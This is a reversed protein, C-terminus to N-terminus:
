TIFFVTAVCPCGVLKDKIKTLSRSHLLYEPTITVNNEICEIIIYTTKKPAHILHVQNQGKFGPTISTTNFPFYAKFRKRFSKPPQIDFVFL